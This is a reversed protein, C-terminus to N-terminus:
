RKEGSDETGEAEAIDKEAAAQILKMLQSLTVSDAKLIPEMSSFVISSDKTSEWTPPHTIRRLRTLTSTLKLSQLDKSSRRVELLIEEVMEKLDRTKQSTPKPANGLLEELEPWMRDFLRNLGEESPGSSKSFKWIDHILRRTDEKTALTHQFMSLPPEVDAYNLGHLYTCVRTGEKKIKKSLAGSEFLIWPATLNESTLCIIGVEAAELQASIDVEWRSGKEIDTDSMFAEVSQVVTPIFERLAIAVARSTSGSWTIFVKM